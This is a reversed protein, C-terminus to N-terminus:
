VTAEAFPSQILDLAKKVQETGKGVAEKSRGEVLVPNGYIVEVRTFFKPVYSRNWAKPIYWARRAFTRVPVIPYGSKAALEVIGPKVEYIPGKPGDVALSGQKGKKVYKILGLLGRAGERSSSGRFVVYGLLQLVRAMLDGDKSLSSLVGLKRYAYYGVLVLEDGHWHAYLCPERDRAKVQVFRHLVEAPGSEHIRWTKVIFYYIPVIIYPLLKRFM